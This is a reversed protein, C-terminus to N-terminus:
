ASQANFGKLSKKEERLFVIVSLLFPFFYTAVRYLVLASSAIATDAWPAFLLLFAFEMPGVGAVNPLASTILLMLVLKLVKDWTYLLTLAIVILAGIVYGILLYRALGSASQELWDGGLLLAVTAYILVSIKHLVYESAMIGLGSGADLGRRYLYFSQMPLTGAGLTAINGFVGLFTVRLADIFTCDPKKHHIIVLCLVSEMVEYAFGLALLLLVGWFPVTSLDKVIDPLVDRFVLIIAVFILALTLGSVFYTRSRKSKM